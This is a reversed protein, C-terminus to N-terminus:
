RRINCGGYNSCECGPWRLDTTEVEAQTGTAILVCIILWRRGVRTSFPFPTGIQGAGQERSISEAKRVLNGLLEACIAVLAGNPIAVRPVTSRAEPGWVEKVWKTLM